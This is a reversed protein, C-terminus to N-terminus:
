GPGEGLAAGRDRSDDRRGAVGAVLDEAQRRGDLAGGLMRDGLRDHRGSGGTRGGRAEVRSRAEAGERGEVPALDGDAVAGEERNEPDVERRQLVVQGGG